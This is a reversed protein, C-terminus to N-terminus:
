VCGYEYWVTQPDGGLEPSAPMSKSNNGRSFDEPARSTHPASDPSRGPSKAPLGERHAQGPAGDGESLSLGVRVPAVTAVEGSHQPNPPRTRVAPAPTPSRRQPQSNSGGGAIAPATASQPLPALREEKPPALSFRRMDLPRSRPGPAQYSGGAKGVLPTKERALSHSSPPIPSQPTHNGTERGGSAESGGPKLPCDQKSAEPGSARLLDASALSFTRSLSASRSAPPHSAPPMTAQRARGLSLSQPPHAPRLPASPPTEADAPRLNPKVYQGPKLLKGESTSVAMKLTPAVLSTPMRAGERRAPPGPQGGVTSLDNAKRFYDSLLDDRCSPTDATPSGRNSEELFEELTVMERSPSACPRVRAQPQAVGRKQICEQPVPGNRPPPYEQRSLTTQGPASADRPLTATDRSPILDESSFSEPRRHLPDSSGKLNLPSSDSSANRSSEVSSPRSGHRRHNTFELELSRECLSDDSNYGQTRGPHRSIPTSSSPATTIAPSSCARSGLEAPWPKTAPDASADTRDLSGGHPAGRKPVLDGPRLVSMRAWPGTCPRESAGRVRRQAPTGDLPHSLEDEKSILIWTPQM